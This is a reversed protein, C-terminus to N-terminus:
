YEVRVLFLGQAPATPGSKTRDRCLLIEKIWAPEHKGIGVYALSGVIIRVMNRLFANGNIEIETVGHDNKGIIISNIRRVPSISDCHAARFSSFDHEGILHNAGERMKGINLVAPIHWSCRWNLASPFQENWIRYLYTKSVSKRRANFDPPMEEVSKVSIDHPLLSNLGLLFGKLPIKSNTFFNVPLNKAHVGADLRSASYLTAEECTMREVATKLRLQITPKDKQFQWGSYATGDFELILKINRERDNM